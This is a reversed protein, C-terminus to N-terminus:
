SHESVIEENWMVECIIGVEGVFEDLENPLYHEIM